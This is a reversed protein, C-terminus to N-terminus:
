FDGRGTKDVHVKVNVQIESNSVIADWDAGTQRGYKAAAVQGLQLCDIKHESKMKIIFNDCMKKVYQCMEKEFESNTKSDKSINKYTLSSAIDGTLDVNITFKYRDGERTCSVKRKATAYYDVYDNPSKQISLVGKGRNGRLINMIRSDNMNMKLVMRDKSFLAMGTIKIGEKTLEIYPLAVNTGEADIQLFMNTIKYEDSFFNYFLSNKILGEIYDSSSPYGNIQYKLIDASKGKCITVYGTDNLNPNRYLIEVVNRMSDTAQEESIIYVKELGLINQKDDILARTQRTEGITSATGVKLMSNILNDTKFVYVSMPISYKIESGQKEGDYGLGSVIDLEEIPQQGKTESGFFVAIVICLISIIIYKWLTSRM